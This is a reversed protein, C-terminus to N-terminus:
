EEGGTEELAAIIEDKKMGTSIVVGRKKALAKLEPVKMKSYDVEVEEEQDSVEEEEKEESEEEKKAKGKATKGKPKEESVEEEESEEVEEKKEESVEEEENEEVEESEEKAPKKAKGKANKGKAVKGKPKEEEDSADSAESLGDKYSKVKKEYTAKEKEARKKDATALDHYKKSKKKDEKIKNWAESIVKTLDGFAYDPHKKKIVPRQESAYFLYASLPRKPQKGCAEEMEKDVPKKAKKGKSTKLSAKWADIAEDIDEDKKIASAIDKKLKKMNADTITFTNAM